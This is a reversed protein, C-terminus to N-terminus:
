GSREHEIENTDIEDDALREMERRLAIRARSIRSKVTGLPLDLAAGIAGYDLERVDRLVLVARHEPKMRELAEEIRSRAPGDEQVGGMGEPEGSAGSGGSPGPGRDPFADANEIAIPMRGARRGRARHWSLCTNITVRTLWTSFASRGDYSGIGRIARVVADQALEAADDPNGVMRRCTAHVRGLEPEILAGIAVRDGAHARELIDPDPLSM